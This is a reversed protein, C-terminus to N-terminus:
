PRTVVLKLIDSVLNDEQEIVLGAARINDMTRRNIHPGSRAVLPDLWDFLSALWPTGPRVHELFLAHGGPRLVRRIEALGRVPDPVSCFVCTSLVTDFTEAPWQLAQVDMLTLHVNPSRPRRQARDLMRPSFDIADVMVSPPYLPLNRGTGVGVELVRPGRVEAMLRSRFRDMAMIEMPWTLLDYRAAGRDYRRRVTATEPDLPEQFSDTQPTGM